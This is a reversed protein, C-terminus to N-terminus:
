SLQKSYSGWQQEWVLELLKENGRTIEGRTRPWGSSRRRGVAEESQVEVLARLV